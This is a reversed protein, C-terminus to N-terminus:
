MGKLATKLGAIMMQKEKAERMLIKITHLREMFSEVNDFDIETIDRSDGVQENAFDAIQDALLEWCENLEIMQDQRADETKAILLNISQSVNM